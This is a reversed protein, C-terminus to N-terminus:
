ATAATLCIETVLWSSTRVMVSTLPMAAWVPSIAASPRTLRDPISPVMLCSAALVVENLAFSATMLGIGALRASTTVAGVPQRWWFLLLVTFLPVIWGHQYQPNDWSTRANLLGPWYSYMLLPTLLGILLWPLRQEQIQMDAAFQRARRVAGEVLGEDHLLDLRPAVSAARTESAAVTKVPVIPSPFSM